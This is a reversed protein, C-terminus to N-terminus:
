SLQALIEPSVLRTKIKPLYNEKLDWDRFIQFGDTSFIDPVEFSGSRFEQKERELTMKIASMRGAFQNANGRLKFLRESEAIEDDFRSFYGDIVHKM